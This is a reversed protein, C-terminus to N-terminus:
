KPRFPRKDGILKLQRGLHVVAVTGCRYVFCCSSITIITTVSVNLLHVVAM